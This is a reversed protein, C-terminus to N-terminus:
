PAPACSHASAICAYVHQIFEHPLHARTHRHSAHMFMSFLSMPCTRVLPASAICAYVHQIFEHPLHARTHRHSAHMLMRMHRSMCARAEVHVLRVLTEAALLWACVRMNAAACLLSHMPQYKLQKLHPVSPKLTLKWKRCVKFGDKEQV